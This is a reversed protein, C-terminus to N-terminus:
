NRPSIKGIWPLATTFNDWDSIDWFTFFKVDHKEAYHRAKLFVGDMHQKTGNTGYLKTRFRQLAAEDVNYGKMRKFHLDVTSYESSDFLTAPEGDGLTASTNWQYLQEYETVYAV